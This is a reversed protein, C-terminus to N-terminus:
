YPHKRLRFRYLIRSIFLELVIFVILTVVVEEATLSFMERVALLPFLAEPIQDLGPAFEGSVMKLRRKIYSSFIDGIMAAIAITLGAQWSYGLGTGAIATVPLSALLGRWTKSPGLLPQGDALRLGMDLPRAFRSKFLDFVIIPVGNALIILLLLEWHIM